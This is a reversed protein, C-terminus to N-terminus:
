PLKRMSNQASMLKGRLGIPWRNEPIHAQIWLMMEVGDRAVLFLEPAALILPAEKEDLVQCVMREKQGVQLAMVLGNKAPVWAVIDTGM